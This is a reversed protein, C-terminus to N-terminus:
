STMSFPILICIIKIGRLIPDDKDSSRRMSKLQIKAVKLIRGLEMWDIKLNGLFSKILVEEYLMEGYMVISELM